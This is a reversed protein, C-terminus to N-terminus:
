PRHRDDTNANTLYKGRAAKVGRNWAAYLSEREETRIYVINNYRRQFEEVIAQENQHSGSDVVIIELRAAITQAELDELCGRLFREANYTSVIASVLIQSDPAPSSVQVEVLAEKGAPAELDQTEAFSLGAGHQRNLDQERSVGQGWEIDWIDLDAFYSREKESFWGLVQRKRWTEPELYPSADFFPYG